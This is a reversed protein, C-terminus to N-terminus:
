RGMSKEVMARTELIRHLANLQNIRADFMDQEAQILEFSTSLGERYKILVTQYIEESLDTRETAEELNSVANQYEIYNNQVEMDIAQRLQNKGEEVKLKSIQARQGRYRKELGDFIPIYLTAGISTTKLWGIEDSDFLKNRQLNQNHNAFAHLKPLYGMRIEKINLDALESTVEMVAYDPRDSYNYELDISRVMWEGAMQNLDGEIEIPEDMPWGMQFKLINETLNRTREIQNQQNKLSNYNLELRRVDLLEAFGERHLAKTENLLKELNELNNELETMQDRALLASYFARKVNWKVEQRTENGEKQTLEKFVRAAQLGVFFSGDFLLANLELAASLSQDTGAPLAIFSGEPAAPDTFQAPILFNPVDPFYQYRVNGNLKPLGTSLTESIRADADAVDLETQRLEFSNELAYDVAEEITLTQSLVSACFFLAPLTFLLVKM